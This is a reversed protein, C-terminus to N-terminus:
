NGKLNLFHSDKMKPAPTSEKVIPEKEIIPTEEVEEVIPEEEIIGPEDTERIIEGEENKPENKLIEEENIEGFDIPELVGIPQLPTLEEEPLNEISEDNKEEVVEEIPATVPTLLTNNEIIPEPEEMPQVPILEESPIQVFDSHHEEEDEKYDEDEPLNEIYEDNVKDEENDEPEEPYKKVPDEEVEDEEDYEVEVEEEEDKALFGAVMSTLLLACIPLIAGQIYSLIVNAEADPLDTWIFIPEKFFQLNDTAHTLLYKYCNYVNGMVQVLTLISMLVWPMIKKRQRTDTLISFLVVAQGVEFAVALMSALVPTNALGFFAFGHIGSVIAVFAYLILFM